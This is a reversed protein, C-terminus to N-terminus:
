SGEREYKFKHICLLQMSKKTQATDNLRKIATIYDNDELQRLAEKKTRYSHTCALLGSKYHTIDWENRPTKAIVFEIGCSTCYLYGSDNKFFIGHGNQFARFFTVKM